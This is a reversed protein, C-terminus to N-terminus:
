TPLRGIRRLRVFSNSSASVLGSALLAAVFYLVSIEGTGKVKARLALADQSSVCRTQRSGQTYRERHVLANFAQPGSATILVTQLQSKTKKGRICFSFFGLDRKRGCVSTNKELLVGPKQKLACLECCHCYSLHAANKLRTGGRRIVRFTSLCLDGCLLLHPNHHFSLEGHSSQNTVQCTNRMEVLYFFDRSPSSDIKKKFYDWMCDRQPIHDWTRQQGM